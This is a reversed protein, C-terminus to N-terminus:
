QDTRNKRERRKNVSLKILGLVGYLVVSAVGVVAIIRTFLDGVLLTASDSSIHTYYMRTNFQSGCVCLVASTAMMLFSIWFRDSIPLNVFIMVILAAAALIDAWGGLPFLFSLVVPIANLLILRFLRKRTM